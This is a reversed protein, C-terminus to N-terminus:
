MEACCLVWCHVCMEVACQADKLSMIFWLTCLWSGKCVYHLCECVCLLMWHFPLTGDLDALPCAEGGGSCKTLSFKEAARESEPEGRPLTSQQCVRERKVTYVQVKHRERVWDAEIERM